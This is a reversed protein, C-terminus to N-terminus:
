GAFPPTRYDLLSPIPNLPAVRPIIGVASGAMAGGAGSSACDCPTGSVLCSLMATFCRYKGTVGMYGVVLAIVILIVGGRM